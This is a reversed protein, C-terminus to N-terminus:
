ENDELVYTVKSKLDHEENYKNIELLLGEEFIKAMPKNDSDELGDLVDSQKVSIAELVGWYLSQGCNHCFHEEKGLFVCLEKECSPCAYRICYGGRNPLNILTRQKTDIAVAIPKM